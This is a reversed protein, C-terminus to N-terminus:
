LYYKLYKCGNKTFKYKIILYKLLKYDKFCCCLSLLYSGFM